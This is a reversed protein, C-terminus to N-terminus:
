VTQRGDWVGYNVHDRTVQDVRDFDLCDRRRGAVQWHWPEFLKVFLVIRSSIAAHGSQRRGGVGVLKSWARWFAIFFHQVQVLRSCSWSQRDARSRATPPARESGRNYTINFLLGKESLDRAVRAFPWVFGVFLFPPEIKEETAKIKLKWTM